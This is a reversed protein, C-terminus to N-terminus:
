QNLVGSNASLRGSALEVEVASERQDHIATLQRTQADFLEAEARLVDTINGMGAEYRNRTIRLSEAADDVAAKAADIRETASRLAAASQRMELQISSDLRRQEAHARAIEYNASEVQGRDAFGNFLNWRLSIGASWNAGGRTAFTQRDAEFEAHALLQPLYASRATQRHLQALHAALALENAEPRLQPAAEPAAALPTLGTTLNHPTELPIGLADNLRAVAIDAQSSRDIFEEKRAAVRVKVALVDADTAMGADRVTRARTLDADAARLSQEAADALAKALLAGWYARAVSATVNMRTRRDEEVGISKRAEASQTTLRTRGADYIPQDVSIASQFDDLFEPRNLRDLAFNSQTFRHQTLLSGFVFVPNDSRTLSETYNVKPLLGSRAVGIQAAAAKIAADSATLAPNQKLGLDVADRLSLADQSQLRAALAL